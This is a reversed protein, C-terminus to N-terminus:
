EARSQKRPRVWACLTLLLFSVAPQGRGARCRCGSAPAGTEKPRPSATRGTDATSGGSSPGEAVGTTGEGYLDCADVSPPPDAPDSQGAGPLVLLTGPAYGIWKEGSPATAIGRFVLPQNVAEKPFEFQLSFSGEAADLHALPKWEQAILSAWQIRVKTGPPGDMCGVLEFGDNEYAQWDARPPSMLAVVPQPQDDARFQVVGRRETWVNVAPEFTYGRLVYNGPPLMGVSFDRSEETAECTIPIRKKNLALACNAWIVM